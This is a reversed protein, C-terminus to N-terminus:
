YLVNRTPLWTFPALRLVYRCPGKYLLGSGTAVVGPETVKAALWKVDEPRTGAHALAFLAAVLVFRYLTMTM